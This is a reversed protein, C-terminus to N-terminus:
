CVGMAPELYVTKCYHPDTPMLHQLKDSHYTDRYQIPPQHVARHHSTLFTGVATVLHRWNGDTLSMSILSLCVGQKAPASLTWFTGLRCIKATMRNTEYNTNGYAAVGMCCGWRLHQPLLWHLISGWQDSIIADILPWIASAQESLM